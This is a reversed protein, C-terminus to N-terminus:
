TSRITRAQLCDLVADAAMDADPECAEADWKAQIADALAARLREVADEGVPLMVEIQEVLRGDVRIEAYEVGVHRLLSGISM